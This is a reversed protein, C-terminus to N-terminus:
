APNLNNPSTSKGEVQIKETVSKQGILYTLIFGFLSNSIGVEFAHGFRIYDPMFESEPIILPALGGVIAFFSGVIIAQQFLPLKTNRNILIAVVIFILARFFQTSIMLPFAPIKDGYFDMLKPYVAYLIMGALLYFFVYLLDSLAIRWTWSTLARPPFVLRRSPGDWKGFIFVLIPSAILTILFGQSTVLVTDLANTVDFIYAEILLNFHGILFYILFIHLSLKLGSLTNNRIILGLITAVLACSFVMWGIYPATLARGLGIETIISILSLVLIGLFTSTFFNLKM